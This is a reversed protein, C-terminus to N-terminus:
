PAAADLAARCRGVARTFEDLRAVRQRENAFNTAALGATAADVVRRVGAAPLLGAEYCVAAAEVYSDFIHVGRARWTARALPPVSPRQASGCIDHILVLPPPPLLWRLQAAMSGSTAGADAAALVAAAASAEADRRWAAHLELMRVGAALDGQGSDGLWVVRFEPYLAAYAAFNEAKKAAMSANTISTVLTGCLIARPSAAGGLIRVAARLTSEKFVAPRASLFVLGSLPPPPSGAGAVRAAAPTEGGGGGTRRVSGVGGGGVIVAPLGSGSRKLARAAAARALAPTEPQRLLADSCSASRRRRSSSSAAAPATTAAAAAVAAPAQLPSPQPPSRYVAGPASVRSAVSPSLAPAGHSKQAHPVSAASAGGGKAVPFSLPPVRLPGHWSLSRRRRPPWHAPLSPAVPTAPAAAAAATGGDAAADGRPTMPPPAMPLVASRASQVADRGRVISGMGQCAGAAGGGSDVVPRLYHAASASAAAAAGDGGGSDLRGIMALLFAAVGPYPASSPFSYDFLRPVITDDFDSFLKVPWCREDAGGGGGGGRWAELAAPAQRRIHAALREGAAPEAASVARSLSLLDHHLSGGAPFAVPM